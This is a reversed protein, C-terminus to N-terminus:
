CATRSSLEPGHEAPLISVLHLGVMDDITTEGVLKVAAVDFACDVNVSVHHYFFKQQFGTAAEVRISTVKRLRAATTRLLSAFGDHDDEMALEAVLPSRSKRFVEAGLITSEVILM